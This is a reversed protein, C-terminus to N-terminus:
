YGRFFDELVLLAGAIKRKYSYNQMYSIKEKSIETVKDTFHKFLRENSFIEGSLILEETPIISFATNFYKALTEVRKEIEDYGEKMSVREIFKFDTEDENKCYGKRKFIETLRDFYLESELCGRKKCVPCFYNHNEELLHTHGFEIAWGNMGKMIEGNMVVSSGIGPGYKLVWFSNHKEKFYFESIVLGMMNNEIIGRIGIRDEIIQLINPIPCNVAKKDKIEGRVLIGIGIIKEKIKKTHKEIYELVKKVESEQLEEQINWEKEHKVNAKMDSIVFIIKKNQIELGLAYGAEANIDILIKKRGVKNETVEGLEIVMKDKILENTIISLTATTLKLDEAIKKRASAGYTNLYSLVAGRNSNRVGEMNIGKEVVRGM